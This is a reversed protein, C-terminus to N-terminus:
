HSVKKPPIPLVTIGEDLLDHLEEVSAYGKINRSDSELRHIKRAEDPFRNGVDESSDGLSRLQDLVAEVVNTERFESRANGAQPKAVYPSSPLRSISTGNCHPCTIQARQLQQDFADSSAFWGEFQHGAACMLDLVIM